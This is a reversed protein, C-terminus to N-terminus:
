LCTDFCGKKFISEISYNIAFLNKEPPLLYRTGQYESAFVQTSNLIVNTFKISVTKFPPIKLEEISAQIKLYIEDPLKKVKKRDLYVILTNQYTNTLDATADGYGKYKSDTTSMSNMKHYMMLSHTDDFGVYVAEGDNNVLAPLLEAETGSRRIVSQALGYIKAGTFSATLSENIENIIKSIM